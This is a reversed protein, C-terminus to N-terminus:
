GPPKLCISWAAAVMNSRIPLLPCFSHISPLVFTNHCYWIVLHMYRIDLIYYVNYIILPISSERTAASKPRTERLGFVLNELRGSKGFRHHVDLLSPYLYCCIGQSTARSMISQGEANYSLSTQPDDSGPGIRQPYIKIYPAQIHVSYDDRSM